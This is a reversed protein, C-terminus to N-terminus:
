RKKLILLFFFVLIFLCTLSYLIIEKSLKLEPEKFVIDEGILQHGAWYYPAALNSNSAKNIAKIKALQLAKITSNGESLSKYFHSLLLNSMKDDVEWSNTLTNTTGTSHFARIFGDVGDGVYYKGLASNCTNLVLLQPKLNSEYVQNLQLITDSMVLASFYSQESNILGHSSLHLISASSNLINNLTADENIYSKGGYLSSLQGALAESFPLQALNLSENYPAFADLEFLHSNTTKSKRFLLPSLCYEIEVHNILYDLKRYDNSKIGKDSVLLAEFPLTNINGIPCLILRDVQKLPIKKFISNYNFLSNTVFEDFDFNLIGQNLKNIASYLSQPLEQIWFNNDTIIIISYVGDIFLFDLFLEKNNLKTQIEKISYLQQQNSTSNGKNLDYYKLFQNASFIRDISWSLGAEKKFFEIKIAEEFPILNYIALNQNTNKSKFENYINEWLVKAIKNKQDAEILYNTNKSSQYLQFLLLTNYKLCMLLDEKYIIKSISKPNTTQWNIDLAELSKDFDKKALFTSNPIKEYSTYSYLFTRVFYSKAIDNQNSNKDEKFLSIAKEYYNYSNTYCQMGKKNSVAFSSQIIDVYSNAMLHYTKALDYKPTNQALQFQISKLYLNQVKNEYYEIREQHSLDKGIAQKISQALTNWIRYIQIEKEQEITLNQLLNECSDAYIVALPSNIKEYYYNSLLSYNWALHYDGKPYHKSRYNNSIVWYKLAEDIDGKLNLIDGKFQFLRAHAISSSNKYLLVDILSDAENINGSIIQKEIRFFDINKHGLVFNSISILNIFLLYILGTKMDLLFLNLFCFLM